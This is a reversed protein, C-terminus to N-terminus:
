ICLSKLEKLVLDGATDAEIFEVPKFDFICCAGVLQEPRIRIVEGINQIQLEYFDPQLYPKLQEITETQWEVDEDTIQWSDRNIVKYGLQELICLVFTACTLSDGKLLPDPVVSGQSFRTGGKNIIGYKAKLNPNLGLARLEAQVITANIESIFDTWVVAYDVDNGVRFVYKNVGMFDATIPINTNLEFFVFGIHRQNHYLTKITIGLDKSNNALPDTDLRILSGDVINSM